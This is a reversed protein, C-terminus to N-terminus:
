LRRKMMLANEIDKDVMSAQQLLRSSLKSLTEQTDGRRAGPGETYMVRIVDEATECRHLTPLDNEVAVLADDNLEDLDSPQCGTKDCPELADYRELDQLLRFVSMRIGRRCPSDPRHYVVSRGVIQIAYRYASGEEAVRYLVIDTWRKHGREAAEDYSWTLDALIEGSFQLPGEGDRATVEHVGPQNEKIATM